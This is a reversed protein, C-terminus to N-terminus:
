RVTVPADGSQGALRAVLEDMQWSPRLGTQDNLRRVFHRYHALAQATNGDAIYARILARHTSERLPEARVAALGAAVAPGLRGASLNHASLAELSHVQLEDLREREALVWDDYWDPLLSGVLPGSSLGHGDTEIGEGALIRDALGVADRVDVGVAPDLELLEDRASVVGGGARRLRWLTSRLSGYAHAETVDPWITFAVRRRPLARPQLALFAVLRQAAPPLRVPAGDRTLRFGGILDVRLAGPTASGGRSDSDPAM